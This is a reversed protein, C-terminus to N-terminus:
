LSKNSEKKNEKNYNILVKQGFVFIKNRNKELIYCYRNDNSLTLMGLEESFNDRTPNLAMVLKMSPFIRIIVYYKKYIYILYDNFKYDTFVIPSSMNEDDNLYFENFKSSTINTDTAACNLDSGNISYCKFQCKKNSYIAISALPQASLFLFDLTFNYTSTDIYISNIMDYNSYSSLTFINIYGDYSCDAFLHLDNNISISSIPYNNHSKFIKELKIFNKNEKFLNYNITYIIISGNSTGYIIYKEDKDVELATIVSKDFLNIVKEENIKNNYVKKTNEDKKSPKNQYQLLYLSGDLYGALIFIQNNFLSKILFKKLISTNNTINNKISYEKAEKITSNNDSEKDKKDKIESMNLKQANFDNDVIILENNKNSYCNIFIINKKQENKYKLQVEPFVKETNLNEIGIIQNTSKNKLIKNKHEFVKTPHVGMEFLRLMYENDARNKLLNERTLRKNIVGDYAYPSFLNGIKQAKAGRQTAGFVLDIWPNINISPFEIIERYKEIFLYPNQKCWKPMLVDNLPMKDAKINNNNNLENEQIISHKSVDGLELTNINLFMEPLTFFEPLIERLDCKESITSYFSNQLQIFSRDACDFGDGQIEILTFSYPFIRVLYYSVYMSNSFHSGFCYPIKSYDFEPNNYLKEIDFKYDPIKPMNKDKEPIQENLSTFKIFVIEEGNKPTQSIRDDNISNINTDVETNRLNRNNNANITIRESDAEDKIKINLLNDEYLNMVMMKYTEIYGEERKKSKEDISLMGMPLGFDRIEGKTFLEKDSNYEYNTLLWPFVPYQSIDRFSRNGFINIWMFYELTSIENNKWMNQVNYISSFQKDNNKDKYYGIIKGKNKEDIGNIQKFLKNKNNRNLVLLLDEIFNDRKKKDFFKFYYSRHNELFIEISNNRFCYKRFFIFNIDDLDFNLFTESDRNNKNNKFISGFCTKHESDYDEYNNLLDQEDINSEVFFLCPLPSSLSVLNNSNNKNPILNKNFFIKGRIHHTTKIYCVKEIIYKEEFKDNPKERIEDEFIHLDIKYINNYQKLEKANNKDNNEEIVNRNENSNRFLKEKYNFLRFNPMYYDIDLIPFLLKRTMNKSLYDSLKYKIIYENSDIKSSTSFKNKYFVDLNSYSNNWSYLRKKFKRYKKRKEIELLCKYLDNNDYMVKLEDVKLLIDKYKYIEVDNIDFNNKNNDINNNTILLKLGKNKRTNYIHEYKNKDFIDESPINERKDETPKKFIYNFTNSGDVFGLNQSITSKSLIELNSSNFFGTNKIIYYNIVLKVANKSKNKNLTIKSENEYDNMWLCSLLTLINTFIQRFIDCFGSDLYFIINNINYLLNAFITEQIEKFSKEKLNLNDNEKIYSSIIITM